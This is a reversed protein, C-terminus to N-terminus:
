RCCYGGTKWGYAYACAANGESVPTEGAYCGNQRCTNYGDSPCGNLQLIQCCTQGYPRGTSYDIAQCATNGTGNKYVQSGSPCSYTDVCMNYYGSDYNPCSGAPTPTPTAAICSYCYANAGGANAYCWNDYNVNSLYNAKGGCSYYNSPISNACNSIGGPCMTLTKTPTPTPIKTPTPTSAVCSYCYANAGGVNTYCWNDYTTNGLYNPTGTCSYYNSPISNACNTAGGPCSATIITSTPTPTAARTPTPTPTATKTPTPTVSSCSYCYANTGGANNYCWNDYSLVGLYNPTGTCSTYNTPTSNACNTIGGPCMSTSTPTPTPSSTASCAPGTNIFYYGSPDLLCKGGTDCSQINYDLQSNAVFGNAGPNPVVQGDTINIKTGNPDWTSGINYIIQSYAANAGPTFHFTVVIQGDTRCSPVASIVKPTGLTTSAQFSGDTGDNGEGFETAWYWGNNGYARAIGIQKFPGYLMNSNHDPSGKWAAFAKTANSGGNTYFLNEGVGFQPYGCDYDMQWYKRGLSDSHTVTNLKIMDFAKFTAARNLNTSLSLTGLGNSQRYQNILTLFQLEESDTSWPSVDCNITNTGAHQRFDQPFQFEFYTVAFGAVLVVIVLTSILSKLSATRIKNVIKQFFNRRPLVRM